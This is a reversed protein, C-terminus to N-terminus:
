LPPWIQACSGTCQIKGNKETTLEYLTHGNPGTLVTGVSGANGSAVSLAGTTSAPTSTTSSGTSSGAPTTTTSGSAAPTSSCAAATIALGIVLGILALGRRRPGPALHPLHGAVFKAKSSSKSKLMDM